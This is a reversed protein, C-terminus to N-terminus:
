QGPIVANRWGCPGPEKLRGGAIRKVELLQGSREALMGPALDPRHQRGRNLGQQSRAQLAKTRSRAAHKGARGDDTLVERDLRHPFQKRRLGAAREAAVELGEKRLPEY